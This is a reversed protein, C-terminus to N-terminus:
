CSVTPSTTLFGGGGRWRPPAELYDFEGIIGGQAQLVAVADGPMPDYDDRLEIALTGGLAATSSVLELVDFEGANVGGVGLELRGFDAQIFDGEVILHAATGAAPAELRVQGENRFEAPATAPPDRLDITGGTAVIDAGLQNVLSAANAGATASLIAAADSLRITAGPANVIELAGAPVREVSATGSIDLLGGNTLRSQELNVALSQSAPVIISGTQVITADRTADIELPEAGDVIITGQNLFLGSVTLQGSGQITHQPGHITLSQWVSLYRDLPTGGFTWIGEGYLSGAIAGSGRIVGDNTVNGQLVAGHLELTGLNHVNAVYTGSNNDLSILGTGETSLTGGDVQHLTVLSGDGAHIVGAKAGEHNTILGTAILSGGNIAQIVGSNVVGLTEVDFAYSASESHIRLDPGSQDVQLAGRNILGITDAHITGTVALTNDQNTLSQSTTDGLVNGGSVRIVGGGTFTTGSAIRLSQTRLTGRNVITGNTLFFNAGNPPDGYTLDGEITVDTFQRVNKIRGSTATPDDDPAAVGRLIGGRVSTFDLDIVGNIGAELVGPVDGEYNLFTAAASNRALAFKGGDAARIVGSNVPLVSALAGSTPMEVWLVNGEGVAELVGRNTLTPLTGPGAITHGAEHFWTAAPDGDPGNIATVRDGNLELRGIGALTTGFTVNFAVGGGARGSMVGDNQVVGALTSNALDLRGLNHIDALKSNAADILGEAGGGETGTKLVGGFVQGRIEVRSDGQAEITGPATGFNQWVGALIMEGGVAALRGSNLYVGPYAGLTLPQGAITALFEGENHILLRQDITGGGTLVGQNCFLSKSDGSLRAGPGNMMIRGTPTLWLFERTFLFASGEFDITGAITSRNAVVPNGALLTLRDGEDTVLNPIYLENDEVVQIIVESAQEPDDDIIVSLDGFPDGPNPVVGTSWNTPEFWSGSPGGIWIAEEAGAFNAVLAVAAAVLVDRPAVRAGHFERCIVNM